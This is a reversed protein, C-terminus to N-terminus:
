SLIQVAFSSWRKEIAGVSASGTTSIGVSELSHHTAARRHGEDAKGARALGSDAALQGTM